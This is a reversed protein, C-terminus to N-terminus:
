PVLASYDTTKLEQLKYEKVKRLDYGSYGTLGDTTKNPELEEYVITATYNDFVLKLYGSKKDKSKNTIKYTINGRDEYCTIKVSKVCIDNVCQEKKMKWNTVTVRDPDNPIGPLITVGQFNPDEVNKSSFVKYLIGIILLLFVIIILIIILNRKKKAMIM